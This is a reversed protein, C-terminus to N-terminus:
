LEVMIQIIYCEPAPQLVSKDEWGLPFFLLLASIVILMRSINHLYGKKREAALDVLKLGLCEPNQKRPAPM